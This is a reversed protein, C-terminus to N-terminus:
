YTHGPLGTPNCVQTIDPRTDTLTAGPCRCCVYNEGAERLHHLHSDGDREGGRYSGRDDLFLGQVHTLIVAWRIEADLGRYIVDTVAHSTCSHQSFSHSLFHLSSPSVHFFTLSPILLWCATIPSELPICSVRFVVFISFM